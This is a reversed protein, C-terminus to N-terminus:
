SHFEDANAVHGKLKKNWLDIKRQVDIDEWKLLKINACEYDGKAAKASHNEADTVIHVKECNLITEIFEEASYISGNVHKELLESLTSQLRNYHELVLKSNLESVANESVMGSFMCLKRKFQERRVASYWARARQPSVNPRNALYMLEEYCETLEKSLDNTIM